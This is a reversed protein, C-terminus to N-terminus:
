PAPPARICRSKRAAFVSASGLHRQGREQRPAILPREVAIPRLPRITLLPPPRTSFDAPPSALIFVPGCSNGRCRRQCIVILRKRLPPQQEACAVSGLLAELAAPSSRRCGTICSGSAFQFCVQKLSSIQGAGSAALFGRADICAGGRLPSRVQRTTSAVQLCRGRRTGPWVVHKSSVDSRRSSVCRHSNHRAVDGYASLLRARQRALLTPLRRVSSECTCFLARWGRRLASRRSAERTQM